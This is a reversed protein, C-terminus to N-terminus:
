NFNRKGFTGTSIKLINDSFGVVRWVNISLFFDLRKYNCDIPKM